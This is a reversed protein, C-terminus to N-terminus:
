MNGKILSTNTALMRRKSEEGSGARTRAAMNKVRTRATTQSYSSQQGESAAINTSDNRNNTQTSTKKTQGKTYFDSVAEAYPKKSSYYAATFFMPMGSIASALGGFALKTNQQSAYMEKSLPTGMDKANQMANRSINTYVGDSNRPDYVTRKNGMADTAERGTALGLQSLYEGRKQNYDAGYRQNQQTSKYGVVNRDQFGGKVEVIGLENRAYADAGLAAKNTANDIRIKKQTGTEGRLSPPTNNNGGTNTGGKGSM